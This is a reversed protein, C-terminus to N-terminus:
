RDLHWVMMGIRRGVRLTLDAMTIGRIVTRSM